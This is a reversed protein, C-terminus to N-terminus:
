LLISYYLREVSVNETIYKISVIDKKYYLALLEATHRNYKVKLNKM